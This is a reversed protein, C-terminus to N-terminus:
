VRWREKVLDDLRSILLPGVEKVWQSAKADVPAGHTAQNLIRRLETLAAYEESSILKSALLRQLIQELGSDHSDLKSVLKRLRQEVEIRLGALSLRPDLDAIVLYAPTQEKSTKLFSALLGATAVKQKAKDLAQLSVDGSLLRVNGSNFLHLIAPRTSLLDYPILLLLLWAAISIMVALSPVPLCALAVCGAIFLLIAVPM